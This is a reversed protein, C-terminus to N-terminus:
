MRKSFRHVATVLDDSTGIDIYEGGEFFHGAVKLGAKMAESFVTALVVEREKPGSQMLYAHM